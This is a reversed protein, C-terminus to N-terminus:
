RATPSWRYRWRTRQLQGTAFLDLGLRRVAVARDVSDILRNVADRAVVNLQNFVVQVGFALAFVRQTLDIDHHVMMTAAEVADTQRGIDDFGGGFRHYVYQVIDPASGFNFFFQLAFSM